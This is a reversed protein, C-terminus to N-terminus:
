VDRISLTFSIRVMTTFRRFEKRTENMVLSAGM